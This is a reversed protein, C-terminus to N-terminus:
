EVKLLFDNLHTEVEPAPMPQPQRDRWGKFDHLMDTLYSQPNRSPWEQLFNILDETMTGPYRGKVRDDWYEAMKHQDDSWKSREVFMMDRLAEM